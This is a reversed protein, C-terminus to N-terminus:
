ATRGATIGGGHRNGWHVRKGGRYGIGHCCDELDAAIHYKKASQRLCCFLRPKEAQKGTQKGEQRNRGTKQLSDTGSQQFHCVTRVKQASGAVREGCAQGSGGKENGKAPKGYEPLGEAYQGAYGKGLPIVAKCLEAVGSETREKEVGQKWKQLATRFAGDGCKRQERACHGGRQCMGYQRQQKEETHQEPCEAPFLFLSAKPGWRKIM